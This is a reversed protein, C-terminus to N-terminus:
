DAQSSFILPLDTFSSKNAVLDINWAAQMTPPGDVLHLFDITFGSDGDLSAKAELYM